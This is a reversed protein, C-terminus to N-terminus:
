RDSSAASNEASASAVAANLTLIFDRFSVKSKTRRLYEAQAIPFPSYSHSIECQDNSQQDRGDGEALMLVGRSLRSRRRERRAQAVHAVRDRRCAGFRLLEEILSQSIQVGEIVFFRRPRESAGGLKVW